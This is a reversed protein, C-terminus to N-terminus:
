PKTIFDFVGAKMLEVAVEITGHGTTVIVEVDPQERKLIHILEQGSMVPMTLDTVVLQFPTARLLQLAQQGNEALTHTYGWRTLFREWLMRIPAEDDVVLIDPVAAMDRQALPAAMPHANRDVVNEGRPRPQEM